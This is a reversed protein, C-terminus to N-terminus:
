MANLTCLDQTSSGPLCPTAMQQAILFQFIQKHLTTNIETCLLCILQLSDQLTLEWRDNMAMKIKSSRYLATSSNLKATVELTTPLPGVQPLEKRMYSKLEESMFQSGRDSHIFQPMGFIAFLQVLCKIMTSASM